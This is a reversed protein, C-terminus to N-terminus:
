ELWEYTFQIQRITVWLDLWMLMYFSYFVILTLWGMITHVHSM